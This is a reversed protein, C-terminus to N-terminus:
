RAIDPLNAGGVAQALIDLKAGALRMVEGHRKVYKDDSRLLFDKEARRADLLAVSSEASLRSITRAAAAMDRNAQQAANGFFYIAAVAILGVVGIAGLAAVKHSVRGISLSKSM